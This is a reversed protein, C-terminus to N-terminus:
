DKIIQIMNDLDEKYLSSSKGYFVFNDKKILIVYDEDDIVYKKYNGSDAKIYEDKIDDNAELNAWYELNYKALRDTKFDYVFLVNSSDSTVTMSKLTYDDSENIYVNYGRDEFAQAYKDMRNVNMFSFIIALLFVLLVIGAFIKNIILRKKSKIVKKSKLSKCNKQLYEIFEENSGGTLNNKDIIIGVDYKLKLIFLNNTEIIGLIQSLKYSSIDGKQSTLIINGDSIKATQRLDEDDNLNRLRKYQIKNIGIIKFIIFFLLYVIGFIIVTEYNRMIMNIILLILGICLVIINAGKTSAYGLSFEKYVKYDIVCVSSFEKNKGM